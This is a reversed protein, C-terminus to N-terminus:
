SFDSVFTGPLDIPSGTGKGPNGLAHCDNLAAERLSEPRFLLAGPFTKIV